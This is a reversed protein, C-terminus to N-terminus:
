ASGDDKYEPFGAAMESLDVEPAYAMARGLATTAGSQAIPKKLEEVQKPITSLRKLVDKIFQPLDKEGMVAEFTRMSGTYLQETLSYVVKLKMVSDQLSRTRDGACFTSM